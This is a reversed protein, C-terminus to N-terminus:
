RFTAFRFYDFDVYGGSQETAYNFLGIRYGMFHDLTYKMQLPRGISTWEEGDASYYFNALDISDRFDFDIKLHIVGGGYPQKELTEMGGDGRNMGMVVFREGGNEAQVGVTGYQGQLAVLGAHDGVKMHSLDMVTRGSCAPGETRQTLTNRALLVNDALQSTELRLYGPRATVSWRSHDPNHNWQWNLALKNTAYNFEDTIVLSKAASEPLNAEFSVPANSGDEGIVPWGDRWTMPLICPIRGVADHDQFLFAFWEGSPSDVIGGQAVGKNRYGLDDDLMVKYEYPGLLEKSRYCLERRRGHGTRPWDIFFLYYYGNLKYAHCGEMRLGIGDREGELLLQRIGDPKIATADSTLETIFIDGNGSFVFVREEDFLLAPDHLLGKIVSRKWPGNEIDETRYIYFQQTDNCSFCVYYIGNHYRLSSAWAGKGYIGKGDSLNHAANDEIRDFVYSVIEWDKLNVSKMIPCGPMSHMSTSIMYFVNDVRIIDIDPVDAWIVPNTIVTGNM